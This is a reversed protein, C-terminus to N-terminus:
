REITPVSRWGKCTFSKGTWCPGRKLSSNPTAACRQQHRDQRTMRHELARRGQLYQPHHRVAHSAHQRARILTGPNGSCRKGTGLLVPYVTLVVEDALGHEPLTSTLTSSGWLVLGPGGHSKIRRLGEVIDPGLGEFPGWQLSEPRHTAVYKTAANFGDAMPGSPAKPWFGSWVDCTRRGLLLDFCEGQAAM